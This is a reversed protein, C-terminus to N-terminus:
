GSNQFGQEALMHARQVRYEIAQSVDKILM